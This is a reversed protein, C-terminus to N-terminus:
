WGFVTAPLLYQWIMVPDINLVRGDHILDEALHSVTTFDLLANKWEIMQDLQQEDLPM